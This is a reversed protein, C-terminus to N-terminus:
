NFYLYCMKRGRGEMFPSAFLSALLSKGGKGEGGLFQVLSKFILISGGRGRWFGRVLCVSLSPPLIIREV